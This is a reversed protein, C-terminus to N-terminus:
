NNKPGNILIDKLNQFKEESILENQRWKKIYHQFALLIKGNYKLEFSKIAFKVLNRRIFFLYNKRKSQYKSKVPDIVHIISDIIKLIYAQFVQINELYAKKMVDVLVHTKNLEYFRRAIFLIITQKNSNYSSVDLILDRFTTVPNNPWDMYLKELHKEIAPHM